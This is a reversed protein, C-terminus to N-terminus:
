KLEIIKLSHRLDVGSYDFKAGWPLVVEEHMERSRRYLYSWMENHGAYVLIVDYYPMVVKALEAQFGVFPAGAEAYNDILLRGPVAEELFRAFGIPAAYGVASSGGFIAVKVKSGKVQEMFAKQDELFRAPMVNYRIMVERESPFYDPYINTHVFSFLRDILWLLIFPSAVLILFGVFKVSPKTSSSSGNNKSNTTTNRHM